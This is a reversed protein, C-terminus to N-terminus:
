KKYVEKPRILVPLLASVIIGGAIVGALQIALLAYGLAVDYDMLLLHYMTRYLAVGPVLPIIGAILFVTVPARRKKALFYSLTAIGVTAIFTGFVESYGFAVLSWYVGWGISGVFGCVVLHNKKVNFIISFSLTAVFAYIFQLFINKIM